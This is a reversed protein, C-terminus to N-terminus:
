KAKTFIMVVKGDILLQLKGGVIKYSNVARLGDLYFKEAQGVEECFMMTGFIQEFKINNGNIVANGGFGNCFSKGSIKNETDFSLSGEKGIPLTQGPWESLLWKTNKISNATMKESCSQLALAVFLILILKKM